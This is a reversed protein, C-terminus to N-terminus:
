RDGDPHWRHRQSQGEGCQLECIHSHLCMGSMHLRPTVSLSLFSLILFCFRAVAASKRLPSFLPSQSSTPAFLPSKLLKHQTKRSTNETFTDRNTYTLTYKQLCHMQTSLTHTNWELEWLQETSYLHHRMREEKDRWGHGRLYSPLLSANTQRSGKVTCFLKQQWICLISIAKSVRTIKNYPQSKKLTISINLKLSLNRLAVAYLYDFHEREKKWTKDSWIAGKGFHVEVWFHEPMKWHKADHPLM